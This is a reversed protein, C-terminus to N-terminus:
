RDRSGELELKPHPYDAATAWLRNIRDRVGGSIVGTAGRRRHRVGSASHRASPLHSRAADPIPRVRTSAAEAEPRQDAACGAIPPWRRPCRGSRRPCSRAGRAGPRSSGARCPGSWRDGDFATTPASPRPCCDSRRGSPGPTPGRRCGASRRCVPALPPHLVRRRPRPRRALRPGARRAGADIRRVRRVRRPRGAPSGRAGRVGARDPADGRLLAGARRALLPEIWADYAVITTDVLTAHVWLALDPDRAAYGAGVISRHLGNLRRIEAAHRPRRGTSSRSTAGFRARSGGGHIPGSTM